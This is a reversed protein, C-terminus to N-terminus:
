PAEESTTGSKNSYIPRAFICAAVRHSSPIAHSDLHTFLGGQIRMKGPQMEPLALKFSNKIDDHAEVGICHILSGQAPKFM